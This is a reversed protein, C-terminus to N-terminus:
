SGGVIFRGDPTFRALDWVTETESLSARRRLTAVDLIEVGATTPSSRDVALTRGDPSLSVDGVDRRRPYRLPRGVPRGSPLAWLASTDDTTGSATAMLRGDASFSPTFVGDGHRARTAPLRKVITGRRPDVLALFGDDGGVVLLRGRPVFGMGPVPRGQAPVVPFTRSRRLTRTDILSVTGDRHGAALVRGDPSLAYRPRRRTTPGSTSRAASAAPAPSIGSSSRATWPPTYLTPSDRSIALGTIQGAHGELTEGAAAHQVDWVIM